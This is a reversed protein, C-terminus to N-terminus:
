SGAGDRMYRLIGSNRSRVWMPVVRPVGCRCPRRHHCETEFRLRRRLASASSRQISRVERERSDMVVARIATVPSGPAGYGLCWNGASSEDGGADHRRVHPRRHGRV